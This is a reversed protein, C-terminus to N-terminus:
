GSVGAIGDWFTTLASAFADPQEIPPLHGARPITIFRGDPIAGAMAEAQEPPTVVDAEGVVVLCPVSISALTETHDERDRMGRLAGVITEYPTDEVMTRLRARVELPADDALLSAAADDALWGRGDSVVREATTDRKARADPGDAGARTDALVLTRILDPRRSWLELAVYGGMSLAVLDIRDIGEEELLAVLDDAHGGMTLIRANSPGSRGFGRLDPALCRRSGSLRKVQDLWLRHDLPFGHVFLTSPGDGSSAVPLRTGAPDVHPV